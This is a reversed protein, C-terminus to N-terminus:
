KLPGNQLLDSSHVNVLSLPYYGRSLPDMKIRGEATATNLCSCYCCCHLTKACLDPFLSQSGRSFLLLRSTAVLNRFVVM